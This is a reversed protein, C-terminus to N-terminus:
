RAPAPAPAAAQAAAGEPAGTMRVQTGERLMGVAGRLVPTGDAVGQVALLTQDGVQGQAGPTVPQHRVQGDVVTQVYPAPKDTRVAAPPLVLSETQATALDGQVFLGQRLGPTPPVSLYILVSRSGAQASPNIRTVRAELPQALGDVRLRALQGLRVAVSDAAPIAAEIELARPDILELVRAEVAVREGPQALRAAVVGDIPSRIVTDDAAKRAVDVGAQAAQYTSKANRLSLQSTELATASIFGQEVLAKNNDYQRQAIAVQAQAAEAQEQAQRVRAAYETVEVRALVQGRRVSDGERVTLDRLEGAARAKVVASNVAKLTGSVSVTRALAVRRVRVLDAPSLEVTLQAPQAAQAAAEAATKRSQLARMVGLALLVALALLGLGTIWRKM